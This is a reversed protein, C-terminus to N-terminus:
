STSEGFNWNTKTENSRFRHSNSNRKACSFIWDFFRFTTGAHGTNLEVEEGEKQSTFEALLRELTITDKSTSIRKISFDQGSLARLILARNSISKSGNLTIEGKIIKDSKSILYAM